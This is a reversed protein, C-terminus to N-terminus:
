PVNRTKRSLQRPPVEDRSRVRGDRGHVVVEGGGSKFALDRGLRRAEAQSSASAVPTSSGARKVQWGTKAPTVDFRSGQTRGVVRAIRQAVRKAVVPTPLDEAVVSDALAARLWEVRFRRGATKSLLVPIVRKNQGIAAGVEFNLNPSTVSKDSVIAVILDAETLAQALASAGREPRVEHRLDADTRSEIGMRTLSRALLGAFRSDSAAHSIFVQTGASSVEM